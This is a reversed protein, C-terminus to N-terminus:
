YQIGKSLNDAGKKTIVLNDEIRVGFGETPIYIGPEIAFVMNEQISKSYDCPDHADLGLSHGISHPFYTRVQERTNTTILQLELLAEGMLNDVAAVYDRWVVGPKLLSIAGIRVREVATYVDKQRSTFTGSVPYTRSIDATYNQSEAGVDMLLLDQPQLQADNKQYHLITTHVGSAVIPPAYGHKSNRKKFQYDLEAEIEYEFKGAQLNAHVFEIGAKTTAIADRLVKIESEQKVSRLMTLETHLGEIPLKSHRRLKQILLRRAPSTFMREQRTFQIPPALLSYIKKRKQTLAVLRSWGEKQEYITAVGSLKTLATNDPAGGFFREVDTLQPLILFEDGSSADIVLIINAEELGTLYFFNSEQRFAFASDNNRQMLGNATLVILGDARLLRVLSQRNNSFFTADLM